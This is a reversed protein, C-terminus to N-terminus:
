YLHLKLNNKKESSFLLEKKIANGLVQCTVGPSAKPVLLAHKVSAFHLAYTLVVSIGLCSRNEYKQLHLSERPTWQLLISINRIRAKTGVWRLGYYLLSVVLRNVEGKTKNLGNARSLQPPSFSTFFHIFM